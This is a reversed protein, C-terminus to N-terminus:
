TCIPNDAAQDPAAAARGASRRGLAWAGLSVLGMAVVGAVFPARVGGAEILWGGVALGAGVGCMLSCSSWTFAETAYQPPTFRTVLVSQCALSPAIAAGAAFAVLAIAIPGQMLAHALLPLAMAGTAVMFQREISARLALGGFVAGMCASGLSCITLWVGGLAPEGLASAVGPYGIELLGFGAGIGFTAAFLLLLRGQTLPGLWHREAHPEPCFHRLARSAAFIAPGLAAVGVAVAFAFTAGRSALLAAVLAPGITYNAEISVADIAFARRLAAEDRFRHRWLTRTLVSVPTIFAGAVLAAGILAAVGAGSYALWGLAALAAPHVAWTALFIGRPGQRDILRGQLPAALAITVYYVGCVVGALAFSGLAERLMMLMALGVMGIPLRALFSVVVFKTVERQRFFEAYDALFRRV